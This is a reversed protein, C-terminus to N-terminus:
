SVKKLRGESLRTLVVLGAAGLATHLILRRGAASADNDPMPPNAPAPTPSPPSAAPAKELQALSAAFRQNEDRYNKLEIFDSAEYRSNKARSFTQWRALFIGYARRQAAPIKGKAELRLITNLNQQTEKAVLEGLKGVDRSAIIDNYLERSKDRSLFPYAGCSWDRRTHGFILDKSM